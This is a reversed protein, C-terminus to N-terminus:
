FAYQLRLHYDMGQNNGLVFAAPLAKYDTQWHTVEFGVQFHKTVDWILNGFVAQNLTRQGLSVDRDIPDDVAYGWHTHLCPTLYDFVEIWGGSSRVTQFTTLKLLQLIAGGYTALGQGTYLEGRFGFGDTVDVQADLGAGWVQDVIRDETLGVVRTTRIEGVM